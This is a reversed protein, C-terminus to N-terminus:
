REMPTAPVLLRRQIQDAVGDDWTFTIEPILALTAPRWLLPTNRPRTRAFGSEAAFLTMDHLLRVLRDRVLAPSAARSASARVLLYGLVHPDDGRALGIGARKESEMLALLPTTAMLPALTLETAWEAAGESLWPDSEIIRLQTGDDHVGVATGELRASEFLIHHWEHVATAVALVPAIGPEIRIADHAAFFGGLRTRAIAAPATLQARRGDADIVIQDGADIQRWADLAAAVGGKALWEAGSANQARVLAAGLREVGIVPVAQVGGFRFPEIAPLSLSPRGWFSAVLGAPSQFAGTPLAIWRRLLLWRVAAPWWVIAEDYGALLARLSATGAPDRRALSDLKTAVGTSDRAARSWLRWAGEFMAVTDREGSPVLQMSALARLAVNTDFSPAKRRASQLAFDHVDARLGGPGRFIQTFERDAAPGAGIRDILARSAHRTDRDLGLAFVSMRRALDAGELSSVGAARTLAHYEAALQAPNVGAAYWSDAIATSTAASGVALQRVVVRPRVPWRQIGPPIREATWAMTRGDVEHVLGYMENAAITGEFRRQGAPATFTIRGGAVTLDNLATYASDASEMLLRGLGADLRLEGREVTAAPGRVEVSWRTPPAQAVLANVPALLCFIARLWRNM